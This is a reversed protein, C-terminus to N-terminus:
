RKLGFARKVRRRRKEAFACVGKGNGGWIKSLASSLFSFTREGGGKGKGSHCFKM